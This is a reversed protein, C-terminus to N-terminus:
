VRLPSNNVRKFFMMFKLQLFRCVNKCLRGDLLEYIYEDDVNVFDVYNLFNELTECYDDKYRIPNHATLLYQIKNRKHLFPSCHFIFLQYLVKHLDINKDIIKDPINQKIWIHLMNGEDFGYKSELDSLNFTLM